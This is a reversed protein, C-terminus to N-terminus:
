VIAALATLPLEIVQADAGACHLVTGPQTQERRLYGMGIPKRALPSFAASTVHGTETPASEGAAPGGPATLPSGIAPPETASFALGVRRRNVHGRSRVREVIEQGTYCGKTYSIHSNELAAEHPIQREDFDAGFWPIGAELRLSNLARCGIPGGDRAKAAATLAQWADALDDLSLLFEAGPAGFLSHRIVRCSINAGSPSTIAATSHGYPPLASLDVGTLARLLEPAAPGEVALTGSTATEDSLTADDMIIFKELVAATEERRFAHGFILLRDDLAFTELEALIHGQANLLLGIAGQGPALDRINSTLVANLYRARDPGALSFVARFNTDILAAAKRAFRYEDAFNGFQAPLAVGFCPELSAGAATHLEALPTQIEMVNGTYCFRVLM